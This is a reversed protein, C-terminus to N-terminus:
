DFRYVSTESLSSPSAFRLIGISTKRRNSFAFLVFLIRDVSQVNLWFKEVNSVLSRPHFSIFCQNAFVPLDLDNEDTSERLLCLSCSRCTSFFISIRIFEEKTRPTRSRNIIIIRILQKRSEEFHTISNVLLSFKM